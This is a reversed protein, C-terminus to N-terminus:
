QRIRQLEHAARASQSTFAYNYVAYGITGLWILQGRVSGRASAMFGTLLLPGAVVLTILDNGFWTAKIWDVDRYHTSMLLGTLSQALM